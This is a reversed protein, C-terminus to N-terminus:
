DGTNAFTLTGSRVLDPVTPDTNSQYEYAPKFGFELYFSQAERAIWLTVGPALTGTLTIVGEFDTITWNTLNVPSASVNILQFAEDPEGSLYPDYYIANILITSSTAGALAIPLLALLWGTLTPALLKLLRKQQM